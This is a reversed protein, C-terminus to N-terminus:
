DTLRAQFRVDLGLLVKEVDSLDGIVRRIPMPSKKILTPTALIRDEDALEPRELVDIIRLEYDDGLEQDCIRRLNSIAQESRATKGTIYLKLSFSRM